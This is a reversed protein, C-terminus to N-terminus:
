LRPSIRASAALSPYRNDQMLRRRELLRDLNNMAFIRVTVEGVDSLPVIRPGDLRFHTSWADTRPNFFRILEGTSPLLSGLDSGKFRNCYVCAYALNGETTSGGHKESIIHEVQCGFFTDDEHILCYECLGEARFAIRRRLEATVYSSM